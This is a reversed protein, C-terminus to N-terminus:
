FTSRTQIKTKFSQTFFLSIIPSSSSRSRTTALYTKLFFSSFKVRFFLSSPQLHTHNLLPTFCSRTSFLFTIYLRHSKIQMRQSQNVVHTIMVLSSSGINKFNNSFFFFLLLKHPCSFHIPYTAVEDRLPLV